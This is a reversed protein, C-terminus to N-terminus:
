TRWVTAVNDIVPIAYSIAAAAGAFVTAVVAKAYVPPM